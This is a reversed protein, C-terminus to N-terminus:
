AALGDVGRVRAELFLEEAAYRHPLESVEDHKTIIWEGIRWRLELLQWDVDGNGTALHYVGASDAGPGARRGSTHDGRATAGMPSYATLLFRTGEM